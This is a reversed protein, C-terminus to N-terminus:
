KETHLVSKGIEKVEKEFISQFDGAKQDKRKYPIKNGKRKQMQIIETIRMNTSEM